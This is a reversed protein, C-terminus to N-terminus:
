KTFSDSEVLESQLSLTRSLNVNVVNSGCLKRCFRPGDRVQQLLSSVTALTTTLVLCKSLALWQM